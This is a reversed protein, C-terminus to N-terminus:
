TQETQPFSDFSLNSLFCLFFIYLIGVVEVVLSIENSSGLKFSYDQSHNKIIWSKKNSFIPNKKQHIRNSNEKTKKTRNEQYPFKSETRKGESVIQPYFFIVKNQHLASISLNEQWRGSSITACIMNHSGGSDKIRNLHRLRPTGKDITKDFIWFKHSLVKVAGVFDYGRSSAVNEM